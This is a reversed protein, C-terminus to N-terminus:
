NEPEYGTIALVELRAVIREPDAAPLKQIAQLVYPRGSKSELYKLPM